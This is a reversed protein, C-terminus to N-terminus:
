RAHRSAEINDLVNQASKDGIRELAILQEKTVKYIDSPDYVLQNQIL